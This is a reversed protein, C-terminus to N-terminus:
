IFTVPLIFFTWLHTILFRWWPTIVWHWYLICAKSIETKAPLFEESLFPKQLIVSQKQIISVKDNNRKNGLRHLATQNSKLWNRLFFKSIKRYFYFIDAFMGVNECIIQSTPSILSRFCFLLLSLLLPYYCCHQILHCHHLPCFIFLISSTKLIRSCKCHLQQLGQM